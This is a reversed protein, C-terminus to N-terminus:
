MTKQSVVLAKHGQNKYYCGHRNTYPTMGNQVVRNEIPIYLEHVNKSIPTYGSPVVGYEMMQHEVYESMALRSVFIIDAGLRAAIYLVHQESVPETHNYDAIKYFTHVQPPTYNPDKDLEKVMDTVTKLKTNLKVWEILNRMFYAWYLNQNIETKYAGRHNKLPVPKSQGGDM